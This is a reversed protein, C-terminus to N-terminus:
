LSVIESVKCPGNKLVSGSLDAWITSVGEPVSEWRAWLVGSVGFISGWVVPDSHQHANRKVVRARGPPGPDQIWVMWM